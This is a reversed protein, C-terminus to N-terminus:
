RCILLHLNYKCARIGMNEQLLRAYAKLDEHAAKSCELTATEDSRSARFYHLLANRLHAWMESYPPALLQNGAQDEALIAVSYTEAFHLWDEMVYSGRKLVIDQYPRGFDLTRRIAAERSTM